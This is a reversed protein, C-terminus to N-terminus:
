AGFMKSPEFPVRDRMIYYCARSIKSALAKRAIVANTKAAKRQYYRRCQPDHIIACAAAEVYAPDGDDATYWAAPFQVFTTFSRFRNVRGGEQDVAVLLGIGTPSGRAAEQLGATYAALQAPDVINQQTVIFGGLGGEVVLRRAAADPVTGPVESMIRQALKQELSLSALLRPVPDPGHAPAPSCACLFLAAALFLFTM